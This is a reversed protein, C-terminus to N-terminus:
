NHHRNIGLKLVFNLPYGDTTPFSTLIKNM